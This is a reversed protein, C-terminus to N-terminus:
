EERRVTITFPGQHERIWDPATPDTRLVDDDDVVEGHLRAESRLYHCYDHHYVTPDANLFRTCDWEQPGEADIPVACDNIWAEPQFRAIYRRTGM